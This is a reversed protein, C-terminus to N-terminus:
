CHAAAMAANAAAAARAAAGAELARRLEAQLRSVNAAQAAHATELQALRAELGRRLEAERRAAQELARIDAAHQAARATAHSREAHLAAAHAGAQEELLGLLTGLPLQSGRAPLWVQASASVWAEPSGAPLRLRACRRRVAQVCPRARGAEALLQSAAAVRQELRARSGSCGAVGGAVGGGDESCVALAHRALQLLAEVSSLADPSLCGQRSHARVAILL